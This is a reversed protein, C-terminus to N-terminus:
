AKECIFAIWNDKEYIKIDSFGTRYLLAEMEDNEKYATMHYEIKDKECVLLFEGDRKLTRYIEEFGKELQDWYIHTQIATIKNFYNDNFPLTAVDAELIEVKGAEINKKNKKISTSVSESSIDIGYVKGNNIKYVVDYITKGGGCGVDLIYDDEEINVKGIAWNTMKEFTLNWIKTMVAGVFGSPNKSQDILYSEIPKYFLMTGGLIVLLILISIKNRINKKNKKNM